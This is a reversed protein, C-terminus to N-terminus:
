ESPYHPDRLRVPRRPPSRPRDLPHACGHPGPSRQVPIAEPAPCSVGSTLSIGISSASAVGLHRLLREGNYRQGRKSRSIRCAYDERTRESAVLVLSSRSRVLLHSSPCP